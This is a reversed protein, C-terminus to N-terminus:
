KATKGYVRNYINRVCALDIIRGESDTPMNEDPEFTASFPVGDKSCKAVLVFYDVPHFNQLEKERSVVLSLTPIKVRGIRWVNGSGNKRASATYARSLNMGVLWDARERALGAEYLCRFKANPVITEFARKMSNSDKANILIRRVEGRYQVFELIEDVLLQGERDPDGGHIVVDANKM